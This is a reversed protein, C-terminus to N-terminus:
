IIKKMEEVPSDANIIDSIEHWKLPHIFEILNEISFSFLLASIVEFLDKDEIRKVKKEHDANRSRRAYEIYALLIAVLEENVDAKSAIRQTLEPKIYFVCEEEELKVRYLGGKTQSVEVEEFYFFNSETTM